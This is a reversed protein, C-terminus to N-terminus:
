QRTAAAAFLIDPVLSVIALSWFTFAWISRWSRFVLIRWNYGFHFNYLDQIGTRISGLCKWLDDKSGFLFLFLCVIQCPKWHEKVSSFATPLISWCLEGHYLVIFPIITLAWHLPGPQLTLLFKIRAKRINIQSFNKWACIKSIKGIGFWLSNWAITGGLLQTPLAVPKVLRVKLVKKLQFWTPELPLDIIIEPLVFLVSVTFASFGTLLFRTLYVARWWRWRFLGESEIPLSLCHVSDRTVCFLNLLVM